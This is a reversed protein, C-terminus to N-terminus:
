YGCLFQFSVAQQGHSGDEWLLCNTEEFMEAVVLLVVSISKTANAYTSPGWLYYQALQVGTTVEWGKIHVM